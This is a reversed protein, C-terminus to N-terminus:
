GCRERPGLTELGVGNAGSTEFQCRLAALAEKKERQKEVVGSLFLGPLHTHDGKLIKGAVESYKEVFVDWCEREEQTEGLPRPCYPDNGMFADVATEVGAEDVAIERVLNFDLLWIETKSGFVEQLKGATGKEMKRTERSSGLVFEVDRGDTRAGWHIAALAQGLATAMYNVDLDMEKMKGLYLKFNRLSFFRQASWGKMAGLYIRVLCDTNSECELAREQLQKPCHKEILRQRTQLPLPTIRESAIATNPQNAVGTADAITKLDENFSPSRDKGVFYHCAPIKIDTVSHTHFAEFIKNHMKYDNRLGIANDDWNDHKALKLVIPNANGYVTGCAGAGIKRLTSTTLSDRLTSDM